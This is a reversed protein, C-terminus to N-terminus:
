QFPENLNASEWTTAVEIVFFLHLFDDRLDVFLEMLVCHCLQQDFIPLIGPSLIVLSHLSGGHWSILNKLAVM